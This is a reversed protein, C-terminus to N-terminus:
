ISIKPRWKNLWIKGDAIYFHLNSKTKTKWGGARCIFGFSIEEGGQLHGCLFSSCEAAAHKGQAGIFIVKGAAKRERERERLRRLVSSRSAAIEPVLLLDLVCLLDRCQVQGLEALGLLLQLLGLLARLARLVVHPPQPM